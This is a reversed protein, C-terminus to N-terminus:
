NIEFIKRFFKISFMNFFYSFVSGPFIIICAFSFRIFSKERMCFIEQKIICHIYIFAFSHCKSLLLFCSESFPLLMKNSSNSFRRCVTSLDYAPFHATVVESNSIRVSNTLKPSLDIRPGPSLSFPSKHRERAVFTKM